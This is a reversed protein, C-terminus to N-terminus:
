ERRNDINTDANSDSDIEEVKEDKNEMVKIVGAVISEVGIGGFVGMILAQPETGTVCWNIICAVTFLGLFIYLTTLMTKLFRM